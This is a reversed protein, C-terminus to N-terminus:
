LEGGSEDLVAGIGDREDVLRARDEVGVRRRRAHEPQGDRVDDVGVHEAPHM